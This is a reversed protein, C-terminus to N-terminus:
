KVGGSLSHSGVVIVKAIVPEDKETKLISYGGSFSTSGAVVVKVFGSEGIETKIMIGTINGDADYMIKEIPMYLAYTTPQAEKSSKTGLKVDVGHVPDGQANDKNSATALGDSAETGANFKFCYHESVAYMKSETIEDNNFAEVAWVFDCLYPPKCPGTYLNNVAVQTFNVVEKTIVPQNSRMAEAANQGQMLQWVKLRYTVAEEPKPSVATWRFIVPSSLNAAEITKSDAPSLLIIQGTSSQSITSNVSSIKVPEKQTQSFVASSILLAILTTQTFKKM